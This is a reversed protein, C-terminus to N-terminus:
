NSYPLGKVSALHRPPVMAELRDILRQLSPPLPDNVPLLERQLDRALALKLCFDFQPTAFAKPLPDM